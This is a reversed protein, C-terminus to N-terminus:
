GLRIPNDFYCFINPKNKNKKCCKVVQNTCCDGINQIRCRKKGIYALLDKKEGELCKEGYSINCCDGERKLKCAVVVTVYGMM